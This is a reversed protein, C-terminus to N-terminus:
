HLIAGERMENGLPTTHDQHKLKILLNGIDPPGRRMLAQATSTATKQFAHAAAAEKSAVGTGRHAMGRFFADSMVQQLVRQPDVAADLGCLWALPEVGHLVATQLYLRGDESGQYQRIWRMLELRDRFANMDFCLHRYAKMVSAPVLLRREVDSDLAGAVIWAQIMEREFLDERIEAARLVIEDPDGVRNVGRWLAAEVPHEPCATMGLVAAYRSDPDRRPM